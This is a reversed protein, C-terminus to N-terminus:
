EAEGIVLALVGTHTYLRGGCIEGNASFGILPVDPFAEEILALERGASGFLSAGRSVCSIYIGGLLSRRQQMTRRRLDAVMRQMDRQAANADRRVFMLQEGAVLEADVAIWGRRPDIGTLSRVLYDGTDSGAVPLAVHIYGAARQLDRAILEGAQHRLVDIARRGDIEMVVQGAAQTVTHTPGIPVCGQTLGVAVTLPSGLMVGSLLAPSPRGAVREQGDGAVPLGGIAFVPALKALEAIAAPMTALQPDAHLLATCHPHRALWDGYRALFDRAGDCEFLQCSDPPLGGIMMAVAGGAGAPLEAGAGMVSFGAAGVWNRLGTAERLFTVMSALDAAFRRDVYLFGLNDDPVAIGGVGDICAKVATGWHEAQSISARFRGNM